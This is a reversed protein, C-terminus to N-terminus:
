LSAIEDIRQQKKKRMILIILVVLLVLLVIGGVVCAIIIITSKDQVIKANETIHWFLGGFSTKPNQYTRYHTINKIEYKGLDFTGNFPNEETGIPVWYKGRFNLNSKLVYHCDAYKVGNKSMGNNVLYAVLGFEAETTILYPSAETGKGAFSEAVFEQISWTLREFYVDITINKAFYKEVFDQNITLINGELWQTVENAGPNKLFIYGIRYNEKANITLTVIDGFTIEYANGSATEFKEGRANAFELSGAKANEKEDVADEVKVNFMLNLKEKVAEFKINISYTDNAQLSLEELRFTYSFEYYGTTDNYTEFMPAGTFNFSYGQAKRVIIKIEDGVHALIVDRFSVDKDNITVGMVDHYRDGDALDLNVSIQKGQFIAKLKLPTSMLNAYTYTVSGDAQKTGNIHQGTAVDIWYLFKYGEDAVARLTVLKEKDFSTGTLIEGDQVVYSNGGEKKGTNLSEIAIEYTPNYVAKIVYSGLQVNALTFTSPKAVAEGEEFSVEWSVFDYGKFDMAKFTLSSGILIEAYWRSYQSTWATISSFNTIVNSINLSEDANAVGLPTFEVEVVAKNYIWGAYLTYTNTEPDFGAEAVYEKGNFDYGDELWNRIVENNSNIYQTGQGLPHTYYGSFTFGERHPFAKAYEEDTLSGLNFPQGYRVKETMTVSEIDFVEFKITYEKPVVYIYITADSNINEITMNSSYTFGLSQMNEEVINGVTVSQFANANPYVINYKLYGNEDGLLNYSLSSYFNLKLSASTMVAIDLSSARNPSASVLNSTSDVAIIGADALETEGELAFQVKVNNEKAIFIAKITMEEKIGSFSYVKVKNYSMESIIVDSSTASVSFSFGSNIQAIFYIRVDTYSTLQYDAGIILKGDNEQYVEDGLREGKYNTAFFYGGIDTGLIDEYRIRIGAQVTIQLKSAKFSVSIAKIPNDIDEYILVMQNEVTFGYDELTIAVGDLKVADIEYGKDAIFRIKVDQGLLIEVKKTTDAFIKALVEEEGTTVSTQIIEFAGHISSSFTVDLTRKIYNAYVKIKQGHVASELFAKQSEDLLIKADEDESLLGNDSSWFSFIYDYRAESQTLVLSEGYKVSQPTQSTITGYAEQGEALIIDFVYTREVARLEITFDENFGQLIATFHFYKDEGFTNTQSEAPAFDNEGTSLSGGEFGYKLVGAVNVTTGTKASFTAGAVDVSQGNLTLTLLYASADAITITNDIAVASIKLEANGVFDTWVITLTKKDESITKALKGNGTFIVEAEDFEYGKVSVFVIEVKSETNAKVVASAEKEEGDVTVVYSQVNTLSLTLTNEQCVKKFVLISDAILNKVSIINGSESVEGNFQTTDLTYSYGIEMGVELQLTQVGYTLPFTDGSEIAGGDVKVIIKEEIVVTLTFDDNQWEATFTITWNGEQDKEGITKFIDSPKYVTGDPALWSVKQGAKTVTPFSGTFVSGYTASITNSQSQLTGGNVDFVVSYQQGIWNATLNISADTELEGLLEVVIEELSKEGIMQGDTYIYGAFNYTGETVALNGLDNEGLTALSPFGFTYNLESTDTRQTYQPLNFEINFTVNITEVVVDIAVNSSIKELSITGSNNGVDAFDKNAVNGSALTYSKIKYGREAQIEIALDSFYKVKYGSTQDGALGAGTPIIQDLNAGNVVINYYNIEWVAFIEVTKDTNASDNSISDLLAFINQTTLLVYNTGDFYKWGVVTYGTREPYTLMNLVSEESEETPYGIKFMTNKVVPELGDEVFAGDTVLDAHEETANVMFKISFANIKGQVNDKVSYNEGDQGGLVIIVKKNMGISADEFHSQQTDITVQDGAFVYATLDTNIDTPLSAIEDFDKVISLASLDIEKAKITLTITYGSELGTFNQSSLYVTVDRSGAKLLGANSFSTTPDIYIGSISIYGKELDGTEGDLTITFEEVLSTIENLSSSLGIQGYTFESVKVSISSSAIELPTINGTAEDANAIHYNGSDDGSLALTDLKIDNGVTIQKYNGSLVVKDGSVLGGLNADSAVIDATRDFVKTIGSITLAKTEIKVSGEVVFDAFNGEGSYTMGKADYEGADIADAFAFSINELAIVYLNGSIEVFSEGSEYALSLTSTSSGMSMTWKGLTSNYEISIDHSSGTYVAKLQSDITVKLKGEAKKITFVLGENLTTYFNESSVAVDTFYYVGQSEGPMRTLTIEVDEANEGEFMTLTFTFDPDNAGLLKEQRDVPTNETTLLIQAKDVQITYSEQVDGGVASLDFVDADLNLTLTYVGANKIQTGAFSFYAYPSQNQILEGLKFAQERVGVLTVEIIDLYDKNEYTVRTNDFEVDALTLGNITVVFDFSATQTGYGEKTAVVKLTYTGSSSIKGAVAFTEEKSLSTTGKLFEYSYTIENSLNEIGNELIDQLAIEIEGGDIKALTTFNKPTAVPKSLSWLAKISTACIDSDAPLSVTNGSVSLGSEGADWGMFDFGTWTQPIQVTVSQGLKIYAYGQDGGKDGLNMLIAKYDTVVASISAEANYTGSFTRPKEETLNQLYELMDEVSDSTTWALVGVLGDVSLNLTITKGKTVFLTLDKTGNSAVSFILESNYNYNLIEGVPVIVGDHEISVIKAVLDNEEFKDLAFYKTNISIEYAYSKSRITYSGDIAYTFNVSVDKGASNTISMDIDFDAKNRYIKAIKDSTYISNITGVVEAVHEPLELTAGEIKHVAGNEYGMGSVKVKVSSAMVEATVNDTLTTSIVTYFGGEKTLGSFNNENFGLATNFYYKVAYGSGVSFRGNPAEDETREDILEARDIVLQSLATVNDHYFLEGFSGGSILKITSTGTYYGYIFDNQIRVDSKYLNISVESSTISHTDGTLLDKIVAVMYIKANEINNIYAFSFDSEASVREGNLMYYIEQVCEGNEFTASLTFTEGSAVTFVTNALTQSTANYYVDKVATTTLSIFKASADYEWVIDLYLNDDYKYIGNPAYTQSITWANQSMVAFTEEGHMLGKLTYGSRVFTASDFIASIDMDFSLNFENQSLTEYGTENITIVYDKAKVSISVYTEARVNVITLANPSISLSTEDDGQTIQTKTSDLEYGTALSFSLNQNANVMVQLYDSTSVPLGDATIEIVKDANDSLSIYIKFPVNEWEAIITLTLSANACTTVFNKGNTLIENEDTRWIYPDNNPHSLEPIDTIAQGYVWTRTTTEKGADDGIFSSEDGKTGKTFTVTYILGEFEAVLSLSIDETPISGYLLVVVEQVSDSFAINNGKATWRLQRYTGASPTYTGIVESIINKGSDAKYVGSVGGNAEAITTGEPTTYSSNFTIAIAETSITLSLHSAIKELSFAGTKSNTAELDGSMHSYDGTIEVGTWKYWDVHSISFNVSDLYYIQYGNAGKVIENVEADTLTIIAKDSSTITIFLEAETWNATFTYGEDVNDKTLNYGGIRQWMTAGVSIEGGLTWYNFDFTDEKNVKMVPLDKASLESYSIIREKLNGWDADETLVSLDLPPNYEIIIKVTIEETQVTITIDGLIHTLSFEGNRNGTEGLISITANEEKDASVGEFTYGENSSVTISDITDYYNVVTEVLSTTAHDGAIVKVTFTKIEWIADLTIGSAGADVADQLLIEKNQDSIHALDIDGYMWGTQTYGVRTLFNEEMLLTSIISNINGTYVIKKNASNGFEKEGDVFTITAGNKVFTLTVETINGVVSQSIEYNKSDDNEAFTLTITKNEGIERDAYVGSAITIVDGDLIGTSTYYGGSANVSINVFKDLVLNNGDYVKTIKLNSNTVVISKAVIEIQISVDQTYETTLSTQREGGFTFNKSALVFEIDFKGVELYGGTSYSANSVSASKITIFDNAIVGANFKLPVLTNIQATTMGSLFSGYDFTTAGAPTTLITTSADAIVKATMGSASALNYNNLASSNIIAMESISVEGVYASSIKGSIVIEDKTGDAYSVVNSLVLTATNSATKVNNYTFNVSQDFVKEFSEVTVTRKSVVVIAKESNAIEVGKWGTVGSGLSVYINYSGASAVANSSFVVMDAYNAKESDPIQVKTAGSEYYLDFKTSVNESGADASLTYNTGNFTVTFNAVAHGNYIYSIKDEFEVKLNGSPVVIDFTENFGASSVFYNADDESNAFSSFTLLYSGIGEGAVRTFVLEVEDNSNAEIVITSSLPSPDVGGFVKSLNIQDVYSALVIEFKEITLNISTQSTLNAFQYVQTLDTPVNFTITYDGVNKLTLNPNGSIYVSNTASKDDTTSLESLLKSGNSSGNLEFAIAVDGTQSRNNFTLNGGNYSVGITNIVIDFDFSLTASKTQPTQVADSFTFTLTLNFTGSMNPVAQGNANIVEFVNSVSNFHYNNSGCSLVYTKNTFLEPNAVSVLEDLSLNIGNESAYKEIESNKLTAVINDFNWKAKLNESKGGSVVTFTTQSANTSVVVHEGTVQTYGGFTIGAYAHTPNAYTRSNESASVYITQSFDGNANKGGNFDLNIKAVDTLIAYKTSDVMGGSLAVSLNQKGSASDDFMGAYSQGNTSDGFTLPYLMSANGDAYEISVVFTIENSNIIDKSVYVYLHKTDNGAVSLVVNNGYFVTFQVDNEVQQAVGDVYVATIKLTDVKSNYNDALQSLLEGNEALLYKTEYQLKLANSSTFLEFESDEAINWEFNGAQMVGQDNTVVVSGDVKLGYVTFYASDKDYDKQGKYVGAPTSTKLTIKSYNYEFSVSGVSFVSASTNEYVIAEVEEMYYASGRPFSLTIKAREITLSNELVVYYGNVDSYVNSFLDTFTMEGFKNTNLGMRLTKGSGANLNESKVVFNNFYESTSGLASKNASASRDTGNWDYRYIFKGFDNEVGDNEQTCAVFESTGNYVTHLDHDYFYMENKLMTFSIQSSLARYTNKPSRNLTDEIDIYFKVNVVGAKRFMSINLITNKAYETTQGDFEVVFGYGTVKEGNNLVLSTSTVSDGADVVGGTAMSGNLIDHSNTLYFSTANVDDKYALMSVVSQSQLSWTPVINIDRVYSYNVEPNFATATQNGNSSLTWGVQIYGTRSISIAGTSIANTLNTPKAGYTVNIYIQSSEIGGYSALKTADYSYTFYNNTSADLYLKYKAAERVTTVKVPNADSNGAFYNASSMFKKFNEPTLSHKGYVGLLISGGDIYVEEGQGLKYGVVVYGQLSTGNVSKQGITYFAQGDKSTKNTMYSIADGIKLTASANDDVRVIYEIVTWNATLTITATESAQNSFGTWTQYGNSDITVGNANRFIFYWNESTAVYKGSTVSGSNAPVTWHSFTHGLNYFASDSITLAEGYGVNGTDLTHGQNVTTSKNSLYFQGNGRTGTTQKVSVIREGVLAQVGNYSFKSTGASAVGTTAVDSVINSNSLLAGYQNTVEVSGNKLYWGLLYYESHISIGGISGTLSTTNNAFDYNFTLTPNISVLGSTLDSYNGNRDKLRLSDIKFEVQRFDFYFRVTTDYTGLSLTYGYNSNNPTLKQISSKGFGSSASFSTSEAWENGNKLYVKVSESPVYLIGKALNNFAISINITSEPNLDSLSSPTSTVTFLNAIATQKVYSSGNFFYYEFNVDFTRYTFKVTVEYNIENEGGQYAVLFVSSSNWTTTDGSDSNKLTTTIGSAVDKIAVEIAYYYGNNSVVISDLTNMNVFYGSSLNVYKASENISTGLGQTSASEPDLVTGQANVSSIAIRTKLYGLRVTLKGEGVISGTAFQWTMFYNLRADTKTVEGPSTQMGTYEVMSIVVGSSSNSLKTTIKVTPTEYKKSYLCPTEKSGNGDKDVFAIRGVGSVVSWEYSIDAEDAEKVINPTLNIEFEERAVIIYVVGATGVINNVTITYTQTTSDYSGVATAKNYSDNNKGSTAYDVGTGTTNAFNVYVGSKQNAKFSSDLTVTAENNALGVIKYGYDLKFQLAIQNGSTINTAELRKSGAFNTTTLSGSNGTLSFSETKIAGGLASGSNFVGGEDSAIGFNFYVSKGTEATWKLEYSANAVPYANKYHSGTDQMQTTGNYIGNYTYGVRTKTYPNSSFYNEFTQDYLFKYYGSRGEGYGYNLYVSIEADAYQITTIFANEASLTSVLPISAQYGVRLPYINNANADKRLVPLVTQYLNNKPTYSSALATASSMLVRVLNTEYWNSNEKRFVGNDLKYFGVYGTTVGSPATITGNIDGASTYTATTGDYSGGRYVNSNSASGVSNFTQGSANSKSCEDYCNIIESSVLSGVLSGRAKTTNFVFSGRLIVDCISAGSTNGFLGAGSYSNTDISADNITVNSITHGNGFFKGSFPNAYTGIPTWLAGILDINAELSYVGSRYDSNGSAVQYAVFALDEATNITYVTSYGFKSVTTITKTEVDVGDLFSGLVTNQTEQALDVKENENTTVSEEAQVTSFNNPITFVTGLGLILISLVLFGKLFKSM